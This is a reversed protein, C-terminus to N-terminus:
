KACEHRNQSLKKIYAAMSPWYFTQRMIYFQKAIGPHGAVPTYHSHDLLRQKLKLPILIQVKKDLEAKRVILGLDDESYPTRFGCALRERTERCLTDDLQADRIEDIAVVSVIKAEVSYVGSDDENNRVQRIHQESYHM